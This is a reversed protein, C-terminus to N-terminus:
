NQNIIDILENEINSIRLDKQLNVTSFQITYNKQPTNLHCIQTPQVKDNWQPYILIAKKTDHLLCYTSVQFVDANSFDTLSEFKKYKTDIIIKENDKEVLIDVFTNRRKHNSEIEILLRKGKQAIVSIDSCKRRMVEFVYEEFLVNMDWLLIINEIKNKSFDISLHSLFMKALDFAKQFMRQNRFLKIKNAKQSSIRVFEIDAYFNMIQKLIKKNENNTTIQHLLSSVYLFLQNLINNESFEDYECYFKAKNTLNYKIHQAFNLKGKMYSLNDKKNIYNKPIQKKLNEFLSRTYENILIELFPNKSNSLKANNDSKINMKRTYSLMYLLNKLIVSDNDNEGALLKPLVEIQLNHCRIVGVYSSARIKDPSIEFAGSLGQKDLYRKLLILDNSKVDTSSEYEKLLLLKM